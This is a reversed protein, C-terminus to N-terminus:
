AFYSYFTNYYEYENTYIGVQNIIYVTFKYTAKHESDTNCTIFGLYKSTTKSFFVNGDKMKYKVCLKDGLENFDTIKTKDFKTVFKASIKIDPNEKILMNICGNQITIGITEFVNSFYIHSNKLKDM